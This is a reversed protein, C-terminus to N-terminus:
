EDTTNDPADPAPTNNGVPIDKIIESLQFFLGEIISRCIKEDQSVNLLVLNKTFEDVPLFMAFHDTADLIRSTINDIVSIYNDKLKENRAIRKHTRVITEIISYIYQKDHFSLGEVYNLREDAREKQELNQFDSIGLLYDTSCDFLESLKILTDVDPKSRGIEWMRVASEGKGLQSALQTQSFGRTNRVYRIRDKFEM